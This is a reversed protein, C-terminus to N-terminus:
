NFYKELVLRSFPYNLKNPIIVNEAFIAKNFQLAEKKFAVRFHDKTWTSCCCSCETDVWSTFHRSAWSVSHFCKMCRQPPFACYYIRLIDALQNCKVYMNTEEKWGCYIPSGSKSDNSECKSTSSRDIIWFQFLRSYPTSIFVCDTINYLWVEQM